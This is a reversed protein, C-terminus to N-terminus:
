GEAERKRNRILELTWDLSAQTKECHWPAREPTYEELAARYAAEAQELRETGNEREGLNRLANGLNNQTMAWDLPVRERTYEALVARFAAVAEELRASEGGRTGLNRLANGLNNQTMAWDLPVRERTREELAARYAAVAQELQAIDNARTGLISLVIGLNSQTTAWGLPVRDRTREELAARYTAVAEELRETGGEREGLRQLAGGLNTQTAAWELPVRERSHEELAARYAVVAEELRETGSEREGITQLANGLNNQLGAWDVPMRERTWEELAARYAAVAEELRETGSEREGLAWLANGLYNQTTAWGLPVRERTHFELAARFAAVAQQLDANSGAQIGITTRVMGYGRLISGQTESDFAPNFQRIIPELRKAVGQMLPVLYHSNMLVAPAASAVIRAAIASGFDSIFQVPLELTDSTLGYSQLSSDVGDAATFQLALAKDGKARGWVLVDCAKEKLWQQAKSGALASADSHRGEGIRLSEPWPIVEVSAGLQQVIADRVIDRLADNKDGHLRAILISIKEPQGSPVRWRLYSSQLRPWILQYAFFLVVLAAWLPWNRRDTIDKEPALGLYTAAVGVLGVVAVEALKKLGGGIWDLQKGDEAM